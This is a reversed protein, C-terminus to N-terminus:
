QAKRKDKEVLYRLSYYAGIAAVSSGGLIAAGVLIGTVWGDHLKEAYIMVFYTTCVAIIGGTWYAGEAIKRINSSNEGIEDPDQEGSKKGETRAGGAQTEPKPTSSEGTFPRGVSELLEVSEEPTIKGEAVMKQIRLVEESRIDEAIM